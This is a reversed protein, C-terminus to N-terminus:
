TKNDPLVDSRRRNELNLEIRNVTGTLNKLQTEMIAIRESLAAKGDTLWGLATLVSLAVTVVFTPNIKGDWNM